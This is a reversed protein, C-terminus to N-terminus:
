VGRARARDNQYSTVAEGIQRKDLYVKSTLEIPQGTTGNDMRGILGELKDLIDGYGSMANPPVINGTAVAPMAPLRVQGLLLEALEKAVERIWGTNRELPIVAEKGAEGAIFPTAADVIGGKALRPLSVYGVSFSLSGGFLSMVTGAASILRNLGSVILNIMNELLGLIGNAINKFSNKMGEWVDVWINKITNLANAWDGTAIAKIITTLSTLIALVINVASSVVGIITEWAIQFISIVTAFIHDIFSNTDTLQQIINNIFESVGTQIKEFWEMVVKRINELLEPLEYAKSIIGALETLTLALIDLAMILGEGIWIAIPKLVNEWLAQLLPALFKIIGTIIDIAPALINLIAPVLSEIIWKGLPLLIKNYVYLFIDGLESFLGGLAKKVKNFADILPQFNLSAAWEKTDSIIQQMFTALKGAEGVAEETYGVDTGGGGGGGGGSSDSMVNLEDISMLEKKADAASGAAGSMSDSLANTNKIAKKYTSKGSLIAFFSAVANAVTTLWGVLTQLVPIVVQLIPAFAAGWSAKLTALNNKLENISQKTQPDSNAFESVAEKIYTRLKSILAFLSRIGFGWLLITKLGKGLSNNSKEQAKKINESTKSSDESNVRNKILIGAENEQQALAEKQSEIDMLIKSHKEELKQAKAELKPLLKEQELLQAKIEKQKEIEANFEDANIDGGYKSTKYESESLAKKLREIENYTEIAQTQADRLQSSIDLQSSNMSTINNKLKEISRNVANLRKQAAKDDADINIVVSGDAM